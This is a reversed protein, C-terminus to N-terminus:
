NKGSKRIYEKAIDTYTDVSLPFGEERFGMYIDEGIPHEDRIRCAYEIAINIYKDIRKALRVAESNTM